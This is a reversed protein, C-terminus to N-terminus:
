EKMGTKNKGFNKRDIIQINMGIRDNFICHIKVRLNLKTDCSNDKLQLRACEARFM